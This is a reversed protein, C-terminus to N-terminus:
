VECDQRSTNLGLTTWRGQRTYSSQALMCIGKNTPSAKYPKGSQTTAFGPNPRRYINSILHSGLRPEDRTQSAWVVLQKTSWEWGMRRGYSSHFCSKNWTDCTNGPEGPMREGGGVRCCCCRKWQMTRSPNWKHLICCDQSSRIKLSFLQVNKLQLLLFFYFTRPLHGKM